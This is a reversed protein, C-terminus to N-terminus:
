ESEAARRHHGGNHPPDQNKLPDGPGGGVGEERKRHHPGNHLPDQNKPPDGSGGGIGEDRRGHDHHRPPDKSGSSGRERKGHNHSGGGNHPPDGHVPDRDRRGHNHSGGGKHPPNKHVSDRDRKELPSDGLQKSSDGDRKSHSPKDLDNGNHPQGENRRGHGGPPPKKHPQNEGEGREVQSGAARTRHADIQVEEARPPHKPDGKHKGKEPGSRHARAVPGGSEEGRKGHPPVKPRGKEPTPEERRDFAELGSSDKEHPSHRPQNSSEGDRKGHPPKRPDNHSSHGGEGKARKGHPPVKPHGEETNPHGGRKIAKEFVALATADVVTRRDFPEQSSLGSFDKISLHAPASAVLVTSLVIAALAKFTFSKVALM